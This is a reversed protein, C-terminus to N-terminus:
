NIKFQDRARKDYRERRNRIFMGTAAAVMFGAFPLLIL